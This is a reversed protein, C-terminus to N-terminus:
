VKNDRVDKLIKRLERSKVVPMPLMGPKTQLSHATAEMGEAVDPTWQENCHTVKGVLFTTVMSVMVLEEFVDTHIAFSKRPM